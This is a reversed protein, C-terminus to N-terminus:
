LELKFSAERFQKPTLGHHKKFVKHMHSQDSFGTSAALGAAAMDARLGARLLRIRCVQQFLHPTMGTLNRFGRLFYWPSYGAYEALAEISWSLEPAAALLGTVARVSRELLANEGVGAFCATPRESKFCRSVQGLLRELEGASIFARDCAHLM